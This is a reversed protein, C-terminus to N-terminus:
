NKRCAPCNVASFGPKGCRFCVLNHSTCDSLCHSEVRCRPCFKKAGIVSVKPSRLPHKYALDPAVLNSSSRPPELFMEVRQRSDELLRCKRKLEAWTKIEQLALRATYYPRINYYVIDFKEEESLPVLLRSFYNQMISLYNVINEEPGQTRGRIEKLLRREYDVPLYESLLLSKLQDWTKVESQVGRYWFLAEDTFIEAASRLLREESISRSSCLEELRQIFARVCTKGNYKFNLSHVGQGRDCIVKVVPTSPTEPTTDGVADVPESDSRDEVSSKFISFMRDLKTLIKNLRGKLDTHLATDADSETEIRTLRHFLHNGLAQIKNLNKLTMSGSPSCWSSLEGLKESIISLEVGIEGEFLVIEDSPVDRYLLKIQKRLAAVNDEPAADRIQVEYVLEDKRLLNFCIPREEMTFM